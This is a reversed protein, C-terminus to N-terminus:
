GSKLAIRLVLPKSRMTGVVYMRGARDRSISGYLLANAPFLGSEEYRFPVATSRGDETRTVWEFTRSGYNTPAAVGHLAGSRDDRFMSAVYRPGAPHFWGADGVDAAGESAPTVRYLRGKSTAFFWSGGPAPHVAVIGHSDELGRDFYDRLPTEAVPTLQQDLEVLFASLAAGTRAVRPVFVHGRGDAFFNRSVHGGASGVVTKKLQGSRTDFQYLVHNFYGLAYVFPGGAAVAILAEPTGALHEWRGARLRWLHGGWTPLQSGDAREGTEDMSAFYLHGDGGEVIRSHIKMQREGARALGLRQLEAVVNGRDALEGSEPSLELLHASAALPDQTSVGIWIHGRSDAGTAGWVAFAGRIDPVDLSQVVHRAAEEIAPTRQAGHRASAFFLSVVLLALTRRM